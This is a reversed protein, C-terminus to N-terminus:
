LNKVDDDAGIKNVIQLLYSHAFPKIKINEVNYINYRLYGLYIICLMQYNVDATM